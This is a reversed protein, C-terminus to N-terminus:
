IGKFTMILDLMLKVTEGLKTEFNQRNNVVDYLKWTCLNGCVRGKRGFKSAVKLREFPVEIVM